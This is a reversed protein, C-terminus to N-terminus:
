AFKVKYRITLVDGSIVNYASFVKRTALTGTTPDNLVGVETVAFPATFTFAAELQATDNTVTTTVRTGTGAKREGGGSAIESELTTDNATEPTTGIGIAMYDFATGGVDTLFLGAMAALGVKTIVNKHTGRKILEGNRSHEVEYEGIAQMDGGLVNKTCSVMMSDTAGINEGQFM